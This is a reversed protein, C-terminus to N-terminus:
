NPDTFHFGSALLKLGPPLTRSIDEAPLVACKYPRSQPCASCLPSSGKTEKTFSIQPLSRFTAEVKIACKSSPYVHLHDCRFTAGIDRGAAWQAHCTEIYMSELMARLCPDLEYMVERRGHPHAQLHVHRRVGRTYWKLFILHYSFHLYQM